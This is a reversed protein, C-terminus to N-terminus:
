RSRGTSLALGWFFDRLGIGDEVIDPGFVLAALTSLDRSRADVALGRHHDALVRAAATATALDLGGVVAHATMLFVGRETQDVLVGARQVQGESTGGLGAVEDDVAQIVPPFPLRGLLALADGQNLDLGVVARFAVPPAGWKEVAHDREGIVDAFGNLQQVVRGIVAFVIRHFAAPPDQFLM